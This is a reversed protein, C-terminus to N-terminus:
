GALRLVNEGISIAELDAKARNLVMAGESDKLAKVKENLVDLCDALFYVDDESEETSAYRYIDNWNDLLDKATFDKLGWLEMEYNYRYSNMAIM